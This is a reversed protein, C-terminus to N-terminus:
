EALEQSDVMINRWDKFVRSGQYTNLLHRECKTAACDINSKDERKNSQGQAM